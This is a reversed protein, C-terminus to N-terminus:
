GAQSGPSGLRTTISPSGELIRQVPCKAAIDILRARQGDTLDPGRLIVTKEFLDVPAPAGVTQKKAHDVAVEVHEVPWGQQRAYWRVTMATCGALAASLLEFPSPGLGDGGAAVPEDGTLVHGAAEIRVAFASEGTESATVRTRLAAM